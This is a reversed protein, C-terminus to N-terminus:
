LVEEQNVHTILIPHVKRIQNNPLQMNRTFHLNHDPNKGPADPNNLESKVKALVPNRNRAIRCKAFEIVKGGTGLKLDATIFRLSLWAGGEIM